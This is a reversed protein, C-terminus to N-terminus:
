ETVETEPLSTRKEDCVLSLKPFPPQRTQEMFFILLYFPWMYVTPEHM